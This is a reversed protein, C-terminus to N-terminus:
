YIVIKIGLDTEAFGVLNEIEEDNIFGDRDTDAEKLARSSKWTSFWKGMRRIANRLEDKSIRGDRDADFHNLWDKFEDITMESNSRCIGRHRIVMASFLPHRPIRRHSSRKSHLIAKGEKYRRMSHSDLLFGGLGVPYLEFCPADRFILRCPNRLSSPM